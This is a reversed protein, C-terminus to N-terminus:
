FISKPLVVQVVFRISWEPGIDPHEVNYFGQLSTSIPLKGFKIVKGVGGGVPVTWHQGSEAMLNNTIIPSTVLYWGDPLNYNIFPQTTWLSVAGHDDQGAFSSIYNTLVGYVWPGDMRLVVVSPGAAFKGATISSDTGSPFQFMPGAGWIFSGPKAPSLFATFQIDGLGWVDGINPALEPQRVLPIVARTIVNWNKTVNLPVVPQFNGVYQKGNHPGYNYNFNNQYPISVMDSVPNQVKKAIEETSEEKAQIGANEASGGLVPGTVLVVLLTIVMLLAIKKFLGLFM